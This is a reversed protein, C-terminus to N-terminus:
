VFSVCLLRWKFLILNLNINLTIIVGKPTLHSRLSKSRKTVIV